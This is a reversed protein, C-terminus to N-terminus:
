KILKLVPNIFYNEIIDNSKSEFSAQDPFIGRPKVINFEKNIVPNILTLFSRSFSSSTYQMRSNYAKYGCDWTRAHNMKKNKLLLKRISYFLVFLFIFFGFYMSINNMTKIIGPFLFGAEIGFMELVPSICNLLIQPFLGLCLCFFAMIGM